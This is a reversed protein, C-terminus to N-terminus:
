PPTAFPKIGYAKRINEDLETLTVGYVIEVAEALSATKGRFWLDQYRDIGGREEILYGTILTGWIRAVASDDNPVEGLPTLPEQWEYLEVVAARISDFDGLSTYHAIGEILLSSRTRGWLNLTVIHTLEHTETAMNSPSPYGGCRQHVQLGRAFGAYELELEPAVERLDEAEEHFYIYIPGSYTTALLGNAIDLTDLVAAHIAPHDREASSGWRAYTTVGGSTEVRWGDMLSESIASAPNCLGLTTTEVEPEIGEGGAALQGLLLHQERAIREVSAALSESRGPATHSLTNTAVLTGYRAIVTAYSDENDFFCDYPGKVLKAEDGLSLPSTGPELSILCESEANNLAQLFGMRAGAVDAYRQVVSIADVADVGDRGITHSVYGAEPPESGRLAKADVLLVPDIGRYAVLDIESDRWIRFDEGIGSLRDRRIVTHTLNLEDLRERLTRDFESLVTSFTLHLDVPQATQAPAPTASEGNLCATLFLAPIASLIVLASGGLHRM